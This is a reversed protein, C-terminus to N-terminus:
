QTSQGDPEKELNLQEIVPSRVSKYVHRSCVLVGNMEHRVPDLSDLVHADGAAM